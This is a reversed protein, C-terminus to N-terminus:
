GEAWGQVLYVITEVAKAMHQLSIWELKSHFGHGGTFLNATPLGAFSLHAGDTGGRIPRRIPSLGARRIAQEAKAVVSPHRDLVLKMNRYSEEVAIVIACRPERASVEAVLSRLLDEHARLGAVTFDRVIFKITTEGVGGAVGDPHIYGERGETTEPSLRDRPLLALLDAAVKLSNVMKGKAYGPHVNHGKITIRVSDACFTEDEIEGVPGGDVTYAYDAGFAALDFHATGRGVEEDPTFAVRIRGHPIEAHRTLYWLASVIEAVGAKDDAGLLTTGDTIILDHGTCTALDPYDAVRIVQSPDASLVIDDGQYGAIVRPRVDAGSVSPSTDVHALLGITQVPGARDSPLSSPLTATVYGLPDLAVDALGLAGLEDALLRLLVLQKETSPYTTADEASQTDLQVYRLFRARLDSILEDHAFM